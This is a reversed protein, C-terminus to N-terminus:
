DTWNLHKEYADFELHELGIEKQAEKVEKIDKAISSAIRQHSLSSRILFRCLKKTKLRVSVM